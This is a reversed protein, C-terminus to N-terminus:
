GKKSAIMVHNPPKRIASTKQLYVFVPGVTKITRFSFISMKEYTRDTEDNSYLIICSM